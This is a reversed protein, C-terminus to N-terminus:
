QSSETQPKEVPVPLPPSKRSNMQEEVRKRINEPNVALTSPYTCGLVMLSILNLIIALIGSSKYREAKVVHWVGFFIGLLCTALWGIAGATPKREYEPLGIISEIVVCVVFGLLALWISAALASPKKFLRRLKM